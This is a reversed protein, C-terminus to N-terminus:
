VDILLTILSYLKPTGRLLPNLRPNGRRIVDNVRGRKRNEGRSVGESTDDSGCCRLM